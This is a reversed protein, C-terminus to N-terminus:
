FFVWGANVNINNVKKLVKKREKLKKVMSKLGKKV